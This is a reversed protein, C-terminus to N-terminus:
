WRWARGFSTAKCEAEEEGGDGSGVGLAGTEEGLGVPMADGEHSRTEWWRSCGAHGMVLFVEEASAVTCKACCAEEQPPLPIM